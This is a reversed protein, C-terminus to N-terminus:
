LLTSELLRKTYPNSPEKLINKSLGEEAILGDKLVIVRHSVSSVLELDHSIFIYSLNLDRQLKLLLEIVQKQITVDLASTPEDLILVQPRM